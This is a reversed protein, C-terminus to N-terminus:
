LGVEIFKAPIIHYRGIENLHVFNNIGVKFLDISIDYDKHDVKRM